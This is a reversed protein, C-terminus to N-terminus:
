RLDFRPSAALAITSAPACGAGSRRRVRHRREAQAVGKARVAAFDNLTRDLLHTAEVKGLANFISDLRGPHKREWERLM